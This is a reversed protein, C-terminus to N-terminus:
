YRWSRWLWSGGRVGGRGSGGGIGRVGSVGRGQSGEGRNNCDDVIVVENSSSLCTEDGTEMPDNSCDGQDNPAVPSHNSSTLMRRSLWCGVFIGCGAM